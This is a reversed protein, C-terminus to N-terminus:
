NEEDLADLIARAIGYPQCLIMYRKGDTCRHGPQHADLLRQAFVRIEELALNKGM